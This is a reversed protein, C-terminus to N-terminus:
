SNNLTSGLRKYRKRRKEFHRFNPKARVGSACYLEALLMSTGWVAVMLTLFFRNERSRTTLQATPAGDELLTIMACAKSLDTAMFTLSASLYTRGRDIASHKGPIAQEKKSKGDTKLRWRDQTEM